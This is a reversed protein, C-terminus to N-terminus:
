VLVEVPKSNNWADVTLHFWIPPIIARPTKQFIGLGKM